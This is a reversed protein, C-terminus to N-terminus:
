DVPDFDDEEIDDYNDIDDFQEDETHQEIDNENENNEFDDFSIELPDYDYASIIRPEDGDKYIEVRELEGYQEGTIKEIRESRKNIENSREAYIEKIEFKQEKGKDDWITTTCKVTDVSGSEKFEVNREHHETVSMDFKGDENIHPEFRDISFDENVVLIGQLNIQPEYKLESRAITYNEEVFSEYSSYTEISKNSADDTDFNHITEVTTKTVTDEIKDYEYTVVIHGDVDHQPPIYEGNEYHGEVINSRDYEVTVISTDPTYVSVVENENDIITTKLQMEDGSITIVDTREGYYTDYSHTQEIINDDKDFVTTITRVDDTGYTVGTFLNYNDNQDNTIRTVKGDVDYDIFCHIYGYNRDCEIANSQRFETYGNTNGNEDFNTQYFSYTDPDFDREYADTLKGDEYFEMRTYEHTIVAGDINEPQHTILIEQRDKGSEDAWSTTKKTDGNDLIEQTYVADNPIDRTKLM